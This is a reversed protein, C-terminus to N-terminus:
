PSAAVAAEASAAEDGQTLASSVSDQNSALWDTSTNQRRVLSCSHPDDGLFGLPNDDDTEQALSQCEAPAVAGTLNGFRFRPCYHLLAGRVYVDGFDRTSERFAALELVAHFWTRSLRYYTRRVQKGQANRHMHERSKIEWGPMALALVKRLLTRVQLPGFTTLPDVRYTARMLAASERLWKKDAPTIFAAAQENTIGRPPPKPVAADDMAAAVAVPAAPLCMRLWEGEPEVFGCMRLLRRADTFIRVVAVADTLPETTRRRKCVFLQRDEANPPAYGDAEHNPPTPDFGIAEKRRIAHAHLKGVDDSQLLMPMNKVADM